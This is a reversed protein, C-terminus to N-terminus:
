LEAWSDARSRSERFGKLGWIFLPIAIGCAVGNVVAMSIGIADSDSLVSETVFAVVWAGTGSAFIGFILIYIATVKGRLENPTIENISTLAAATPLNIFLKVAAFGILALMPSPMLPSLTGIVFCGTTGILCTRMAADANGRRLMWRTVPGSLAASVVGIVGGTLGYAIGTWSPPLAHVRQFFTALWFLQGYIPMMTLAVGIFIPIYARKNLVLFRWTGRWNGQAGSSTGLGGQRQPELIAAMLLGLFAGPLGLAIFVIQWAKLTGLLPVTATGTNDLSALLLGSLLYALLTGMAAGMQYIGYANPRESRPFYDSILSSAAPNLTAEGVAVGIRALALTWFGTAAACLATAVSWVVIGVAAIYKRTFRDVLWGVFLGFLTYCVTFGIVQILGLDTDSLGLDAQLMPALQGVIIRDIIAFIYAFHLVWTGTWAARRDPWAM